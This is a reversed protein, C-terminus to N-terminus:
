EPFNEDAKVEEMQKVHRETHGAMFLVMQYADITGFPMEKYHGRFDDQSTQLFKIHETRKATLAALTESHTGFKGSPEFPESTTVKKERSSIMGYIEEDSMTVAAKMSEDPTSELTGKLMDAFAHESITLHEVCNAISWSEPSSKFNLQDETLGELTKIMYEHTKTLKAVAMEREEDTLKEGVLTFSMLVLAVLPLISKKM